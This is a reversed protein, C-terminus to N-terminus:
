RSRPPLEGVPDDPPPGASVVWGPPEEEPPRAAMYLENYWGGTGRIAQALRSRPRRFARTMLALMGGIVVAVLALAIWTSM